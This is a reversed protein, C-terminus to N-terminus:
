RSRSPLIFPPQLSPDFSEGAEGPLSLSLLSGPQQCRAALNRFEAPLLELQQVGKLCQCTDFDLVAAVRHFVDLPLNRLEGAAHVPQQHLSSYLQNLAAARDMVERIKARENPQQEELVCSMISPEFFLAM